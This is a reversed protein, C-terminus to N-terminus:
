RKDLISYLFVFIILFLFLSPIRSSPSHTVLTSHHAGSDLAYTRLYKKQSGADIYVKCIVSDHSLAHSCVPDSNTIPNVACM